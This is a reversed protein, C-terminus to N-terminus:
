LILPMLRPRIKIVFNGNCGNTHIWKICCSCKEGPCLLDLYYSRAAPDACRGM